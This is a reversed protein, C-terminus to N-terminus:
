GINGVIILIPDAAEIALYSILGLAISRISMSGRNDLLTKGCITVRNAFDLLDNADHWAEIYTHRSAQVKASVVLLNALNRCVTIFRDHNDTNPRNIGTRAFAEQFLTISDTQRSLWSSLIVIQDDSFRRRNSTAVSWASWLEKNINTSHVKELKGEALEFLGWGNQEPEFSPPIVFWDSPVLVQLRALVAPDPPPRDQGHALAMLTFLFALRLM